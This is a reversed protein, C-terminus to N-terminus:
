TFISNHLYLSATRELYFWVLILSLTLMNQLVKVNVNYEELLLTCVPDVPNLTIQTSGGGLDLTGFMGSSDRTLGGTSLFLVYINTTLM